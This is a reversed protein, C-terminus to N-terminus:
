TYQRHCTTLVGVTMKLLQTYQGKTHHETYFIKVNYTCSNHTIKNKFIPIILATINKLFHLKGATEVTKTQNPYIKTYSLTIRSIRKKVLRHM